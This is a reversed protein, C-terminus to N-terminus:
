IQFKTITAVNSKIVKLDLELREALLMACAYISAIGSSHDIEEVENGDMDMELGALTLGLNEGRSLKLDPTEIPDAGGEEPLFDLDEFDEECYLSESIEIVTRIGYMACLIDDQTYNPDLEESFKIISDEDFGDPELELLHVLCGTYFLVKSLEFAIEESKTDTVPKHRFLTRVKNIKSFGHLINILSPVICDNKDELKEEPLSLLINRAHLITDEM